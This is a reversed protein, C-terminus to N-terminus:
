RLISTQSAPRSSSIAPPPSSPSARSPACPDRAPADRGGFASPARLSPWTEPPTKPPTPSPTNEPSIPTQSTPPPAPSSCPIAAATWPLYAPDRYFTRLRPLRIRLGFHHPRSLNQVSVIREATATRGAADSTIYTVTYEGITNVDVNSVICYRSRGRLPRHGPRSARRLAGCELLVESDGLTIQPRRRSRRRRPHGRRHKRIPGRGPLARRVRRADPDLENVIEVPIEGECADEAIAGPEDYIDGCRITIRLAGLLRIAPPATDQVVVIRSTSATNGAADAVAYSIGYIGPTNSRVIDGGIVVRATIDGDVNDSALVGPDSFPAGCELQM